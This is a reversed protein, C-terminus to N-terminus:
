GKISIACTVAAEAIEVEKAKARLAPIAKTKVLTGDAAEVTIVADPPILKNMRALEQEAKAVDADVGAEASRQEEEKVLQKSIAVSKAEKEKQQEVQKAISEIEKVTKGKMAKAEADLKKKDEVLKRERELISVRGYKKLYAVNKDDIAPANKLMTEDFMGRELGKAIAKRALIKEAAEGTKVDRAMQALDNWWLSAMGKNLTGDANLNRPDLLKAHTPTLQAMTTAKGARGIGTTKVKDHTGASKRAAADAAIEDPTLVVGWQKGREVGQLEQQKAAEIEEYLKLRAKNSRADNKGELLLLKQQPSLEKDQAKAAQAKEKNREILLQARIENSASDRKGALADIEQQISLARKVPEQGVPASEDARVGAGMGEPIPEAAETRGGTEGLVPVGDGAGSPGREVPETSEPKAEYARARETPRGRVDFMKQTSAQNLQENYPGLEEKAQALIANLETADGTKQYRAQAQQFREYLEANRDTFESMMDAPARPAEPSMDVPKMEGTFMDQMQQHTQVNTGAKRAAASQIAEQTNQDVGQQRQQAAREHIRAEAADLVELRAIAQQPSLKMNVIDRRLDPLTEFTRGVLKKQAWTLTDKHEIGATAAAIDEKTLTIDMPATAAYAERVDLREKEADVQAQAKARDATTERETLKKQWAGLEKKLATAKKPDTFEFYQDFNDLLQQVGASTNTLEDAAGVRSALERSLPAAAVQKKIQENQATAEDWESEYAKNRAEATNWQKGAEGIAREQRGRAGWAGMAGGLPAFAAAAKLSEGYRGMAEPSTIDEGSQGTRLAETGVMMGAGVAANEGTRVLLNRTSTNLLAKAADQTMQGQAVAQATKAIDPGLLKLYAVGKNGLPGLVPLIAAQTLAAAITSADTPRVPQGTRQAVEENRQIDEGLESPMDAATFGIGSALAAPIALEPVMAAGATAAAGAGIPLIYRGIMGGMPETINKRAFAGIGPLVGRKFETDVDESTTPRWAGPEQPANLIQQGLQEAGTSGTLSGIGRLGAGVGQRLGAGLAGTFGHKQEIGFAEPYMHQARNWADQETEGPRIKVASGDPLPVLAM